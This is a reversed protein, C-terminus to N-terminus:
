EVAANAAAIALGALAQGGLSGLAMVLENELEEGTKGTLDTANSTDVDLWPAQAVGGGLLDLHVTGLEQEGELASIDLGTKGEETGDAIILFSYTDQGPMAINLTLDTYSKQGDESVRFSGTMDLGLGGAELSRAAGELGRIRLLEAVDAETAHLSMGTYTVGELDMPEAETLCKGMLDAYARAQEASAQIDEETLEPVELEGLREELQAMYAEMEEDTMNEFDPMIFDGVAHSVAEATDPDTVTYVHSGSSPGNAVVAVQDGTITVIFEAYVQGENEVYLRAGRTGDNEAVELVANLGSLDLSEGDLAAALGGFGYRVGAEGTAITSVACGSLLTMLCLFLIAIKKM